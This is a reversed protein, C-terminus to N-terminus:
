FDRWTGRARILGKGEEGAETLKSLVSPDYAITGNGNTHTIEGNVLVAGKITGGNLKIENSGNDADPEDSLGWKAASYYDTMGFFIGYSVDGSSGQIDMEGEVIMIVPDDASGVNKVGCDGEIWIVPLGRLGNAKAQQIAEDYTNSGTPTITTGSCEFLGSYSARYKSIPCSDADTECGSVDEGFLLAFPDPVETDQVFAECNDEDDKKCMYDGKSAAGTCLGNLYEDYQCVDWSAEGATGASSSWAAVPVGEGGSNPNPVLTFGGGTPINGSAVFPVLEGYDPVSSITYVETVTASGSGDASIGTGTITAAGSSISSSYCYEVGASGLAVSSGCDFSALSSSALYIQSGRDLGAQAAALAEKARNQDSSVRLETVTSRSVVLVTITLLALLVVVVILTAMGQQAPRGVPTPSISM